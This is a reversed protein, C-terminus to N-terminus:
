RHKPALWNQFATFIYLAVIAYVICLGLMGLSYWSFLPWPAQNQEYSAVAFIGLYFLTGIVIGWRTPKWQRYAYFHDIFM